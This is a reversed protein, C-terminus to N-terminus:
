HAISYNFSKQDISPSRTLLLLQVLLTDNKVYKPKCITEIRTFDVYGYGKETRAETPKQFCLLDSKATMTESIHKGNESGETQDLISLSMTGTFPWKLFDDYEGKMMHVFLGIYQGVRKDIGNLNIRLCMKYSGYMYIPPSFLAPMMGTIANQQCDKFHKIKWIYLGNCARAEFKEALQEFDKEIRDLRNTMDSMHNTLERHVHADVLARAGQFTCGVRHFPCLMETTPCEKDLHDRMLERPIKEKQCGQCVQPLKPCNRVHEESHCWAVEEKCFDCPVTRNPCEEELHRPVDRRAVRKGCHKACEIEVFECENKHDGLQSLPGHWPCGSKEKLPCLVNLALVERRACKDPFLVSEDLPLNDIPCVPVGTTQKRWLWFCEDCFRHGCSTQIADRLGLFCIPCQHNEALPPDFIEDYGGQHSM